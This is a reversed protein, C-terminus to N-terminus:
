SWNPAEREDRREMMRRRRGQTKKRRMPVETGQRNRAGDADMM